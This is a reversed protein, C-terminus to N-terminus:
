IHILSLTHSVVEILEGRVEDALDQLFTDPLRRLDAPTRISDLLWRTPPAVGNM